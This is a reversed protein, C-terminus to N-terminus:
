EIWQSIKEAITPAADELAKRGAEEQWKYIGKQTFEDQFVIKNKHVDFLNVTVDAICVSFEDYSSHYRTTAAIKLHLDAQAPTDTFSCGKEALTSKLKNALVTTPVSFNSESSEMYVLLAQALRTQVQTLRSYLAETKAQQLDDPTINADIAKLLVQTSRILDLLPKAAEYQQRAKVKENGAELEQATRMLGEAQALNMAIIGKHYGTLEYRNVYAFAYVLRSAADTYSETKVGALEAGTESSSMSNFSENESYRGNASVATTETVTRSTIQLRIKRSLDAQADIKMQQVVDQLPKGAAAEGYAFGTIYVNEPYKMRRFDEDLWDPIGQGSVLVLSASIFFVTAAIQKM